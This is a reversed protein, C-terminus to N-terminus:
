GNVNEKGTVPVLRALLVGCTVHFRVTEACEKVPGAQDRTHIAVRVFNGSGDVDVSEDHRM